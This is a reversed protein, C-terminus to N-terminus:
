LACVTLQMDTLYIKILKIEKIQFDVKLIAHNIFGAAYTGGWSIVAILSFFVALRPFTMFSEEDFLSRIAFGFDALSIGLMLIGASGYYMSLNGDGRFAANLFVIYVIEILIAVVLAAIGRKSQKKETFKYRNRKRRGLM